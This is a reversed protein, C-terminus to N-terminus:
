AAFKEAIRTKDAPSVKDEKPIGIACHFVKREVEPKLSALAEFEHLLEKANRGAMNGAIIKGRSEGTRDDGDIERGRAKVKGDRAKEKRSQEPGARDTEVRERGDLAQELGQEKTKLETREKEHNPEHGPREKEQPKFLYDLLGAFSRGKSIKGIVTM